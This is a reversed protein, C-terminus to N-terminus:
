TGAGQWGFAARAAAVIEEATQQHNRESTDITLQAVEEYLSRRAVIMESITARPDATQLLPRHANRSVRDFIVEETATLQVVFGLERLLIRNHARIVIGGGTAFVSRTLHGCSELASTELDRFHTEGHRAFIEPIELRAREAVLTDIDFFQFRLRAAILRGVSTKGTGMFGILVLNPRM